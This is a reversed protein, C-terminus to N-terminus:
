HTQTGRDVVNIEVANSVCRIPPLANRDKANPSRAILAVRVTHKGATLALPEKETTSQWNAPLQFPITFYERGPPFWSSKFSGEARTWEYWRGDFELECLAQHRWLHLERTGRNRVDATL